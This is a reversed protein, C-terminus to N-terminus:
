CEAGASELSELVKPINSNDQIQYFCLGLAAEQELSEINAGSGPHCVDM